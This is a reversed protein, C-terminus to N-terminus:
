LPRKAMTHLPQGTSNPKKSKLSELQLPLDERVGKGMLYSSFGLGLLIARPPELPFATTVPVGLRDELLGPWCSVITFPLSIVLRFGPRLPTLLRPLLLAWTEPNVFRVAAPPSTM